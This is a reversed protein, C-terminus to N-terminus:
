ELLDTATYTSTFVDVLVFNSVEERLLTQPTTLIRASIFFSTFEVCEGPWVWVINEIHSSRIYIAASEPSTAVRKLDRLAAGCSTGTHRVM